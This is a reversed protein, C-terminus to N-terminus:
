SVGNAGKELILKVKFNIYRLERMFRASAEEPTPLMFVSIVAIEAARKYDKEDMAQSFAKKFKQVLPGKYPKKPVAYPGGM